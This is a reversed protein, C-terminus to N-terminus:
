FSSGGDIQTMMNDVAFTIFIFLLYYHGLRHQHFISIHQHTTFEFASTIAENVGHYYELGVDM